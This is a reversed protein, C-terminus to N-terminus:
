IVKELFPIPRSCLLPYLLSQVTFDILIQRKQRISVRHDVLRRLKDKINVLKQLITKINKIKFKNQIFDKVVECLAVIVIDECKCVFFSKQRNQKFCKLHKLRERIECQDMKYVNEETKTM